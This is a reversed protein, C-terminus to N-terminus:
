ALLEDRESYVAIFVCGGQTSVGAHVSHPEARCYDGARMLVGNVLLDGEVLYSEEVAAHRHPRLAAGPQMRVLQTVYGREHDVALTKIEIGPANGANWPLHGPRVFNVGDKEYAPRRALASEEAVRALVRARVSPRPAAPQAAHGLDAAVASFARAEETCVACPTALHAEFERAEEDRLAGLAYLAARERVEELTHRAATM